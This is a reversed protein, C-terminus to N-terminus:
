LNFVSIVGNELRASRMYECYNRMVSVDTHELGDSAKIHLEIGRQGVRGGSLRTALYFFEGQIQEVVAKGEFTNTQTAAPAFANGQASYASRNIFVMGEAQQLLTFLRATNSVNSSFEFKDNYRLNYDIPGTIKKTAALKTAMAATDMLLDDEGTDSAGRNFMTIVKTVLRSAMGINRVTESQISTNTITTTIARYDVFSFDLQKNQNAWSEMEDGSGYYIYDACFKVENQDLVQALDTGADGIHVLRNNVPPHLTLEITVPEQMMFLPLQHVKLFPFLDSLDVAYSPAEAQAAGELIAFPMQEYDVDTVALDTGITLDPDRGVSVSLGTAVSGLSGGNARDVALNMCRGTTYLEREKNNENSIKTSHYAHLKDWDSIENLVKNGVKLVAKKIVKGVGVNPPFMAKDTTANPKVSLFVKSHSHLFGKNQLQFRIFGDVSTGSGDNFIVPELLDTEVEQLYDVPVSGLRMFNPVSPAYKQTVASADDMVANDPADGPKTSM